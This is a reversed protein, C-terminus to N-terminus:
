SLEALKKLSNLIPNEEGQPEGEFSNPRNDEQIIELKIFNSHDTLVYSMVFYNEPSDELNPRPAFLSYRILKHPQVELISGWQEFVKGEWETIFRIGNGVEWDTILDSGFQWIKVLEPKTLTDWVRIASAKIHLISTNKAM